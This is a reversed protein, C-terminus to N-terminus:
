VTEGKGVPFFTQERMVYNGTDELEVFEMKLIYRHEVADFAWLEMVHDGSTELRITLCDTGILRGIREAQGHYPSNRIQGECQNLRALFLMVDATRREEPDDPHERCTIDSLRVFPELFEDALAYMGTLPIERISM